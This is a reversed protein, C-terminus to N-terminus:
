KGEFHQLSSSHVGCNIFCLLSLAAKATEREEQQCLLTLITHRKGGGGVQM